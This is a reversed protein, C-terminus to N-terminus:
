EFFTSESLLSNQSLSGGGPRLETGPVAPEAGSPYQLLCFYRGTDIKNVSIISLTYTTRIGDSKSCKLRKSDELNAFNTREANNYYLLFQPNGHTKSGMWFWFVAQCTRNKCSCSISARGGEAPYQIELTSLVPLTVATWVCATWVLSLPAMTRTGHCQGCRRRRGDADALTVAGTRGTSTTRGGRLGRSGPALWTRRLSPLDTKNQKDQLRGCNQPELVIDSNEAEAPPDQSLLFHAHQVRLSRLLCQM